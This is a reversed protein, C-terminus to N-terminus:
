TKCYTIICFDPLLRAQPETTMFGCGAEQRVKNHLNKQTLGIGAKAYRRTGEGHRCAVEVQNRAMRRSLGTHRGTGPEAQVRRHGHTHEGYGIRAAACLQIHEGRHPAAHATRDDDPHLKHIHRLVGRLGNRAMHKYARGCLQHRGRPQVHVAPYTDHCLHVDM